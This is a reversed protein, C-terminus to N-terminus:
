AASPRPSKHRRKGLQFVIFASLAGAVSALFIAAIAGLTINLPKNPRVPLDGPEAPGTIEALSTKPIMVDLKEAEIKAALLKHFEFRNDLERKKDWYPQEQPSQPGSADFRIKCQQRLSEVELQLKPIQVEAQQYQNQLVAIGKAAAEKRSNERYDQYSQAIANALCAAELKDESYVTIEILKTTRVPKLSMRGKLFKMTETTKLTEGGNYKKGWIVNLNLAEIVKGLVVRDEIIEFTTQIFYPDYATMPSSSSHGPFMSNEDPEVKLRATSAYSEPMLFSTVVSIGFVLLFVGVFVARFTHRPVQHPRFLAAIKDFMSKRENLASLRETISTKVLDPLVRLWLKTLGWRGAENWVDRCQDRFLQSMAAGYEERHSKPYVVLLREFIKQSRALVKIDAPEPM